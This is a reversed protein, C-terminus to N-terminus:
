QNIARWVPIGRERVFAIRGAKRLRQITKDVVRSQDKDDTFAAYLQCYTFPEGNLMRRELASIDVDSM